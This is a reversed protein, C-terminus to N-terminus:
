ISFYIKLKVQTVRHKGINGNSRGEQYWIWEDDAPSWMGGTWVTISVPSSAEPFAVCVGHLSMCHGSLVVGAGTTRFM